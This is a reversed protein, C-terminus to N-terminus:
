DKSLGGDKTRDEVKMGKPPSFTFLADDLKPDFTQNSFTVANRNNYFDVVAVHRIIGTEVEVTLEMETMSATPENPYLVLTVLGENTGQNEISFDKDMDVQGTVVRVISLVEGSLDRSYKYAMDEDPFANWIADSTVLFLEPIPSVTEWRLQMPKTFSFVGQRTEKSGSEQHELIQVFESRMSQIDRYRKQVVVTVPDAAQAYSAFYLLGCLAIVAYIFIRM